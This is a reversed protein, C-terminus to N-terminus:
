KSDRFIKKSFYAKIMKETSDLLPSPLENINVWNIENFKDPESSKVEGFFKNAKFGITVAHRGYMIDNNLSIFELEDVDLGTEEKVERKAAEILSEGFELHGGPFSWTDEGYCKKRKGLLVKDNDMIMIGIGVIPRKM